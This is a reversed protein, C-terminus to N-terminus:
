SFWCLYWCDVFIAVLVNVFSEGIDFREWFLLFVSLFATSIQWLWSWCRFTVLSVIKSPNIESSNREKWREHHAASATINTLAYPVRHIGLATLFFFKFINKLFRRSDEETWPLPSYEVPLSSSFVKLQFYSSSPSIQGNYTRGPM